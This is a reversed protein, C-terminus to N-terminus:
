LRKTKSTDLNSFSAFYAEMAKVDEERDTFVELLMSRTESSDLLWNIGTQLSEMDRASRYCVSNQDCIGAATTRHCGMVLENRAPSRRLGEFKGFIGGGGNNLLLIRFNDPRAERGKLQRASASRLAWLANQDYFFSLDGIVCFVRKEVVLSMGVATSLSGEIGNVGRNCWVFHRSYINALRVATSNAYHVQCDIARTQLGEEFAKVAAMQSFSPEFARSQKTVRDFVCQWLRRYEAREPHESFLLEGSDADREAQYMAHIDALAQVSDCQVVETVNMFTDCVAGSRSIRFVEADKVQRLFQKLHKSVLTGGLYLVVDPQYRKDHGVVTLAEDVPVCNNGLQCLREALVVGYSSLFAMTEGFDEAVVFDDYLQGMVIMPHRAGLFHRAMVDTVGSDGFSFRRCIRREQPLNAVSFDYLPESIPVNIHVPGREHFRLELLAENVLRNCYWHEEEDHPEPLSVSKKVFPSLAGSQPLTQGDQQDIWSAPRDASVVVIPAHQYFAEAVAPMLNLLATGSTVCVVVPSQTALSMGLAVFGASREDTVPCCAVGGCESLNHVIPANRSGPCVVAHRVHHKLLLATLINVNEKNSFM